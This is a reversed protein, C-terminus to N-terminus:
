WRSVESCDPEVPSLAHPACYRDHHQDDDDSSLELMGMVRAFDASSASRASLTGGSSTEDASDSTELDSVLDLAARLIEAFRQRREKHPGSISSSPKKQRVRLCDSLEGRRKLPRHDSLCVAQGDEGPMQCNADLSPLSGGGEPKSHVSRKGSLYAVVETM